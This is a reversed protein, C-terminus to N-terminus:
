LIIQKIPFYLDTKMQQPIVNPGVNLYHFFPPFDSLRYGSNPLWNEILWQVGPMADRPGQQRLVACYCAPVMKNIVGFQNAEDVPDEVSVCIDLRYNEPLTTMPNSWHIGLTMGQHPKIGVSKRWAIFQATARGQQHEPGRYELAAVLTEPFNVFSVDKDQFNNKNRDV